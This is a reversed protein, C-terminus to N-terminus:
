SLFYTNTLVVLLAESATFLVCVSVKGRIGVIESSMNRLLSLLSWLGAIITVVARWSPAPVLCLLIGPIYPGFSYGYISILHLYTISVGASNLLFYAALPVALLMFYILGGATTLLSVIGEESNSPASILPLLVIITTPIWFPGWLDPSLEGFFSDSTVPFSARYLRKLVIETSISFYDSYYRAEYCKAPPDARVEEPEFNLLNISKAM